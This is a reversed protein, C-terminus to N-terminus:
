FNTKIKGWTIASKGDVKVALNATPDNKDTKIEAESLARNYVKIEDILGNMWRQNGGRAGIYLPDSNKELTGSCALESSKKGDIYTRIVKGDWTGAIHHWEGDNVKGGTAEDDCSDPLDNMQLLVSDPNYCPLLNYEGAKWADGKEVASQHEATMGKILVWCNITIATTLDLSDSDKVELWNGTAIQICSNYKGAVWAPKGKLVADNKFPSLDKATNGSNEDLPLYMVLSPDVGAYASCVMLFCLALLNFFWIKM